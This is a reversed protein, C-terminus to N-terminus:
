FFSPNVGDGHAKTRGSLLASAGRPLSLKQQQLSFWRWGRCIHLLILTQALRTRGHPSRIAPCFTAMLGVGPFCLAEPCMKPDTARHMQSHALDSLMVCAWDGPTLHPDSPLPFVCGLTKGVKEEQTTCYSEGACCVTCALRCM